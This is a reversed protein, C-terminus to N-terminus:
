YMSENTENKKLFQENKYGHPSYENLNQDFAYNMFGKNVVIYLLIFHKKQFM